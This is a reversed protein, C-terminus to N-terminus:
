SPFLFDNLCRARVINERISATERKAALIERQEGPWLDFWNETFELAPHSLQVALALTDAAIRLRIEADGQELIQLSLKVPPLQIHKLPERASFFRMVENEKEDRLRYVWLYSDGKLSKEEADIALLTKVEGAELHVAITQDFSPKKDSSHFRRIQLSGEWREKRHNIGYFMLEKGAQGFDPLGAWLATVLV